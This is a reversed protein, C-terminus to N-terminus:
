VRARKEKGVRREESRQVASSTVATVTRGAAGVPSISLTGFLGPRLVGDPNDLTVRVPLTRTREDLSPAVYDLPATFTRGLDSSCVDSSWDRSFRTHRR